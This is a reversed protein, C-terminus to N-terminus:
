ILYHFLLTYMLIITLISLNCRVSLTCFILLPLMVYGDKLLLLVCRTYRYITDRTLNTDVTLKMGQTLIVILKNNSLNKNNTTIYVNNSTDYKIILRYYM